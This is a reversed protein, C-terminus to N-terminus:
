LNTKTSNCSFITKTSVGLKIPQDSCWIYMSLNFEFRSQVPHVPHVPHVPDAWRMLSKLIQCSYLDICLPRANLSQKLIDILPFISVKKGGCCLMTAPLPLHSRGGGERQNRGSGERGGWKGGQGGTDRQHDGLIFSTKITNLRAGPTTGFISAGGRLERAPAPGPVGRAKFRPPTPGAEGVGPPTAFDWSSEGSPWSQQLIKSNTTASSGNRMNTDEDWFRISFM